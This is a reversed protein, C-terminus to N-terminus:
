RGENLARVADVPLAQRDVPILRDRTRYLITTREEYGQITVRLQSGAALRDLDVRARDAMEIELAAQSAKAAIEAADVRAAKDAWGKVTWAFVGVAILVIAGVAAPWWQSLAALRSLWTM